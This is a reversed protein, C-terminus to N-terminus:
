LLSAFFIPLYKRSTNMQNWEKERRKGKQPRALRIFCSINEKFTFITKTEGKGSSRIMQSYEQVPTQSVFPLVIATFVSYMIAFDSVVIKEINFNCEM